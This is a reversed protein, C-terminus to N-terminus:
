TSPTCCNTCTFIKLCDVCGGVFYRQHNALWGPTGTHTFEHQFAGGLGAGLRWGRCGGGAGGGGTCARDHLSWRHRDISANGACITVLSRRDRTEPVCLCVQNLATPGACAQLWGQWTHQLHPRPCWCTHSPWAPCGPSSLPSPCCVWCPLPHGVAVVGLGCRRAFLVRLLPFLCVHLPSCQHHWQCQSSWLSAGPRTHPPLPAAAMDHM